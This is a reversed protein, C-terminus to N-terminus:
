SNKRGRRLARHLARAGLLLLGAGFLRRLLQADLATACWAGLAASVVGAAIAPLLVDRRLLGSKRHGPLAFAATPLFYLLNIGQAMSQSTQTFLTLYIMLLTGGGIGWASLIGTAAAVLVAILATM